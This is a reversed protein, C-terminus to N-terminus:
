VRQSPNQYEPYKNKFWELFCMMSCFTMNKYLQYGVENSYNEDYANREKEVYRGKGVQVAFTPVHMWELPFENFAIAKCSECKFFIGRMKEGM